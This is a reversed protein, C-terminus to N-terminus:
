YAPNEIGKQPFRLGPEQKAIFIRAFNGFFYCVARVAQAEPAYTTM